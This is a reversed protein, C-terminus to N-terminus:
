NFGYDNPEPLVVGVTDAIQRISDIFLSYEKRNLKETSKEITIVKGNSYIEEILGISHKIKVKLHDPNEGVEKAIIGIIMHAYKRQSSTKSKAVPHIDIECGDSDMFEKFTSHFFGWVSKVNPNEKSFRFYKAM